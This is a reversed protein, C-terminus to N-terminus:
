PDDLDGFINAHTPCAVVCAPMLGVEIRHACYTCKDASNTLPDIYIANYPCAMM